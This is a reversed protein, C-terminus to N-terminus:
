YKRPTRGRQKEVSVKFPEIRVLNGLGIGDKKLLGIVEQITDGAKAFVKEKGGLNLVARFKVKM